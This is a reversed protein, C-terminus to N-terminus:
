NRVLNRVQAGSSIWTRCGLHYFHMTDDYCTEITNHRHSHGGFVVMYDGMVVASHQARPAPAAAGHQPDLTIWTAADLSYAYM